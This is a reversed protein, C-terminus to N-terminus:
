FVIGPASLYRQISFITANMYEEEAGIGINRMNPHNELRIDDIGEKLDALEGLFSNLGSSIISLPESRAIRDFKCCFFLWGESILPMKLGKVLSSKGVGPDGRLFVVNNINSHSDIRSISSVLELAKLDDSRGYLVNERFDPKDTNFKSLYDDTLFFEPENLM